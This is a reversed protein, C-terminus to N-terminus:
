SGLGLGLRREVLPLGVAVREGLRDLELEVGVRTVLGHDCIM